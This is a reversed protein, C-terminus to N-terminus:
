YKNKSLLGQKSIRDYYWDKIIQQLFKDRQNHNSYINSFKDQLMYFLQKDTMNKMVQGDTGKLGVIPLTKPYGKEDMCSIGGKVFNDDLYKKVINVKETDIFFDEKLLSKIQQFQSETIYVKKISKKRQM